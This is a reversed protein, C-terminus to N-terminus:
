PALTARVYRRLERRLQRLGATDATWGLSELVVPETGVGAVTAYLMGALLAPDCRRLRGRHMESEFYCRCAQIVPVLRQRLHNLHRPDLRGVERVLGLLAPRRVVPRFVACVVADVRALPDDGRSRVAAEVVTLLEDAAHDLVADVLTSKSNFWYLISQKRVGVSEAIDDLSVGDVGRTGFLDLSEELIRRRTSDATM